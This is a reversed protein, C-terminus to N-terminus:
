FLIFILISNCTLEVKAFIVKVSSIEMFRRQNRVLLQWQGSIWRFDSDSPIFHSYNLQAFLEEGYFPRSYCPSPQFFVGTVLSFM